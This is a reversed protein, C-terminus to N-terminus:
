GHKKQRIFCVTKIFAKMLSRLHQYIFPFRLPMHSPTKEKSNKPQEQKQM